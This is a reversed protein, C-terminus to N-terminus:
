DFLCALLDELCELGLLEHTALVLDFVRYAVVVLASQRDLGQDLVLPKDLYFWQCFTCDFCDLLAFYVNNGGAAFFCKDLIVFIQMVPIDATLDGPSNRNRGELTFFVGIVPDKVRTDILCSDIYITC